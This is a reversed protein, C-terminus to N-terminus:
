LDVFDFCKAFFISNGEPEACKPHVEAYFSCYIMVKELTRILSVDNSVIGTVNDKIRGAVLINETRLEPTM